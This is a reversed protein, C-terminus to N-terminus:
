LRSETKAMEVTLTQINEWAAICEKRIRIVKLASDHHQAEGLFVIRSAGAVFFDIWLRLKAHRLYRQAMLASETLVLASYRHLTKESYLSHVTKLLSDTMLKTTMVNTTAISISELLERRVFAYNLICAIYTLIRTAASSVLSHSM